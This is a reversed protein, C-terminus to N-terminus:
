RPDLERVAHDTRLSRWCAGLDWFYVAGLGPVPELYHVSSSGLAEPAPLLGGQAM